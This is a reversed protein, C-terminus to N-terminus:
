HLAGSELDPPQPFLAKWGHWPTLDGSSKEVCKEWRGGTAAPPIYAAVTQMLAPRYWILRHIKSLQSLLFLSFQWQASNLYVPRIM